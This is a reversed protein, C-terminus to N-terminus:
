LLVPTDRFRGIGPFNDMQRLNEAPFLNCAQDIGGFQGKIPNEQHSKIASSSAARFHCMQLHTVDIALPHHNMNVATLAISVTIDHQAFAARHTASRSALVGDYAWLTTTERYHAAYSCDGWKEWPEKAHRDVRTWM